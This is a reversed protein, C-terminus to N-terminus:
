KTAHSERLEFGIYTRRQVRPCRQCVEVILDRLDCILTVVRILDRQLQDLTKDSSNQGIWRLARIARQNFGHTTHALDLARCAQMAGLLAAATGAATRRCSLMTTLPVESPPHGTFSGAM